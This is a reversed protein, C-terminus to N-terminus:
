RSSFCSNSSNRLNAACRYLTRRMENVGEMPAYVNLARGLFVRPPLLRDRQRLLVLQVLVRDHSGRRRSRRLDRLVQERVEHVNAVLLAERRHEVRAEVEEPRVNDLLRRPLVTEVVEVHRVLDLNRPRLPLLYARRRQHMRQTTHKRAHIHIAPWARSSPPPATSSPCAFPAALPPLM